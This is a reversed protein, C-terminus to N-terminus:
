VNALQEDGPWRNRLFLDTEPLEFTSDVIDLPFSEAILKVLDRDPLLEKFTCLFAGTDDDVQAVVQSARRNQHM